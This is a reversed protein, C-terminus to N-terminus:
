KKFSQKKKNSYRFFLPKKTTREGNSQNKSTKTKFHVIKQKKNAHKENESEDDESDSEHKKNAKDDNDNDFTNINDKLYSDRENVKRKNM